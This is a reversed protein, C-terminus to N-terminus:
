LKGGYPREEFEPGLPPEAPAPTGAGDLAALVADAGQGLSTSQEASPYDGARVDRCYAGAADRIAAGVEAYRRAHRPGPGEGLGILDHLVLVQGDCGPGSGIGITPIRLRQSIAQAVEAPVLELVVGFAGAAELSLADDLLRRATAATRGQVRYGGLAHVSQPTLGIHGLVPIGVRCLRGVTDAMERGGELKVAQAGGEALLRGANEIASEAGVQFTLFPMDAIVLAHQAARAVMRSHYLAEGLTVGLTTDHGQVVMGLSDGILLADVGALDCIKATPYDYATLMSIREGRAKMELFTRTTVRAAM